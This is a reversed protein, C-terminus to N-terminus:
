FAPLKNMGPNDIKELNCQDVPWLVERDLLVVAKGEGIRYVVGEVGDLASGDRVIVKDGFKLMM